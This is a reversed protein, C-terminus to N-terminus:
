QYESDAKSEHKESFKIKKRSSSIKREVGEPITDEAIRPTMFSFDSLSIGVLEPHAKLYNEVHTPARVKTGSPTIYHADLKSYDKRLILGRKFGVPTKPINPKDLAWTRTADYEIDAPDECSVDTKMSCVFPEDLVRSRIDEYEEQTPIIRWKWCNECQAAYAHISTEVHPKQKVM